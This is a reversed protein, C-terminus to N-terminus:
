FYLVILFEIASLLLVFGVTGFLVKIAKIFGKEDKGSIGTLLYKIIFVFSVLILLAKIITMAAM